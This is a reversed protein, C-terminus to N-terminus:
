LVIVVDEGSRGYSADPSRTLCSNFNVDIYLWLHVSRGNLARGFSGYRNTRSARPLYISAGLVQSFERELRDFSGIFHTPERGNNRKLKDVM